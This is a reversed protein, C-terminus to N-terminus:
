CVVGFVFNLVDNCSVKVDLQWYLSPAEEWHRAMKEIDDKTFGHM